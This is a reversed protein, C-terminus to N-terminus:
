QLTVNDRLTNINQLEYGRNTRSINCLRTYRLYLKFLKGKM